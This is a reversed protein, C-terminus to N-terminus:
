ASGAPRTALAGQSAFTVLQVGLSMADRRDLPIELASGDAAILTLALEGSRPDATVTVEVQVPPADDPAAPLAAHTNMRVESPHSFPAPRAGGQESPGGAKAIEVRRVAFQPPTLLQRGEAGPDRRLRRALRRGQPLRLVGCEAQQHVPDRLLKLGERQVILYGRRFDGFLITYSNGAIEPLNEDIEVPRGLLTPPESAATAPRWLYEGSTGDARLRDIVSATASSMVWTAAQRYPARLSWYISRLSDSTVETGRGTAVFQLQCAPSTSDVTSVISYSLIGMPKGVGDGSIFAEGETRAFKDAIKGDLWVGIDVYSLDLLKQMVQQSTYIENLPVNLLGLQPTDLAPRAETEGVWEAAIEDRDLPEQWADGTTINQIRALRRIPSSDLLRRTMTDSIAPLTIYGGAPDIQTEMSKFEADSGTKCFAGLAKREAQLNGGAVARDYGGSLPRNLRLEIAELRKAYDQKFSTVSEELDRAAEIADTINM